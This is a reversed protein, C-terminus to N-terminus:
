RVNGLHNLGLGAWPGGIVKQVPCGVIAETWCLHPPSAGVVFDGHVASEPGTGSGYFAEPAISEPTIYDGETARRGDTLPPAKGSKLTSHPSTQVLPTTGKGNWFDRHRELVQELRDGAM